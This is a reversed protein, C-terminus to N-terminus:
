AVRDLPVGPGAFAYAVKAAERCAPCLRVTDVRPDRDPTRMCLTLRGGPLALHMGTRHAVAVIAYRADVWRVWEPTEGRRLRFGM